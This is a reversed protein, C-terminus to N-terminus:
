ESTWKHRPDAFGVLNKGEGALFFTYYLNYGPGAVIQHYGYPMYTVTNNGLLVLENLKRDESYIREIGFGQERDTKFYYLEEHVSEIKDKMEEHKHPPTGSWNGAPNITEGLILNVSPANEFVVYRVERKWNDKGAQVVKIDEPRVIAYETKVNCRASCVGLEVGKSAIVFEAGIPIYAGSPLGGFVSERNGINRHLTGGVEVDCTGSYIVIGIESNGSNLRIEEGPKLSLVAFDSIYKFTGNAIRAQNLGQQIELQSVFRNM